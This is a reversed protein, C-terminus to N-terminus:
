RCRVPGSLLRTTMLTDVVALALLAADATAHLGGARRERPPRAIPLSPRGHNAFDGDDVDFAARVAQSTRAAVERIDKELQRIATRHDNLIVSWPDPAVGALAHLSM